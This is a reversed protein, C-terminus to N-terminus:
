KKSFTILHSFQYYVHYSTNVMDMSKIKKGHDKITIEMKMSTNVKEMKIVKKYVEKMDNVLNFSMVGKVMFCTMKGVELITIEKSIFMFEGDMNSTRFILFM